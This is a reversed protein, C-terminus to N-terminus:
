RPDTRAPIPSRRRAWRVGSRTTAGAASCVGPASALRGPAGAAPRGPTRSGTTGAYRGATRQQRGARGTRSNRAAPGTGAGRGRACLRGAREDATEQGYQRTATQSDRRRPGPLQSAGGRAPYRLRRGDGSALRPIGRTPRFIYLSEAQRAGVRSGQLFVRGSRCELTCVERRNRRSARLRSLIWGGNAGVAGILAASVTPM